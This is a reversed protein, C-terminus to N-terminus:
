AENPAAPLYQQLLMRSISESVFTVGRAVDNIARALDHEADKKLVCARFGADFAMPLLYAPLSVTLLILGTEPLWQRLVRAAAIGTMTPMSQDLIVIDPRREIALRVAEEGDVASGVLNFRERALLAGVSEHLGPCNDALLIRLAM